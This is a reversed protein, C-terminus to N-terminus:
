QVKMTAHGNNKVNNMFSETIKNEKKDKGNTKANNETDNSKVAPYYNLSRYRYKNNEFSDRRIKEEYQGQSYGDRYAKNEAKKVISNHLACVSIGGVVCLTALMINM